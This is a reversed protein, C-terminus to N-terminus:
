VEFGLCAARSGLRTGRLHLAKTAAAGVVHLLHHHLTPGLSSLKELSLGHGCSEM